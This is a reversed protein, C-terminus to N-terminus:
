CNQKYFMTKQYDSKYHDAEGEMTTSVWKSAEYKRIEMNEGLTKLVEYNPREIELGLANKITKFFSMNLFIIFIIFKLNSNM